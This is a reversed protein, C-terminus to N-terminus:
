QISYSSRTLLSEVNLEIVQGPQVSLLDTTFRSDEGIPEIIIRIARSQGLMWLPLVLARTSSSPVTAVRDAQGDHLVFVNVDLLHNSRLIVSFGDAQPSPNPDVNQRPGSCASAVALSALLTWRVPNFFRLRLVGASAPVRRLYFPNSRL